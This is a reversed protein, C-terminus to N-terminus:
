DHAVRGGVGRPRQRVVRTGHEVVTLALVAVEVQREPLEDARARRRRRLEGRLGCVGARGLWGAAARPLARGLAVGGGGAAGACRARALVGAAVYEGRSAM